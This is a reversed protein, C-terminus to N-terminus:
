VELVRSAWMDAFHLLMFLETENGILGRIDGYLGNHYLIAFTEEETLEVFDSLIHIASVEHPIKLIDKNREFPKADSRKGSKLINEVYFPKGYYNAKGIDHFLGVVAISADDIDASLVQKLSFMTETVKLSHELLGGEKANHHQSSAPATFFGSSELFDLLSDSDIADVKNFYTLFRKNIDRM